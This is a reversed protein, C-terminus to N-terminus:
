WEIRLECKYVLICPLIKQIGGRNNQKNVNKKRRKVARVM